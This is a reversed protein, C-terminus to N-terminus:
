FNRSACLELWGFPVAGPGPAGLLCGPGDVAAAFFDSAVLAALPIAPVPDEVARRGADVVAEVERQGGAEDVHQIDVLWCKRGVREDREIVEARDALGPAG